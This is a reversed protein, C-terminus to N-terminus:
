KDEEAISKMAEAMLARTQIAMGRADARWQVRHSLVGMRHILRGAANSPAHLPSWPLARIRPLPSARVGPLTVRHINRPLVWFAEHTTPPCGLKKHINHLNCKAKRQRCAFCAHKVHTHRSFAVVCAQGLQQCLLCPQMISTLVLEFDTFTIYIYVKDWVQAFFAAEPGQLLRVLEREEGAYPRLRPRVKRRTQPLVPEPEWGSEKEPMDSAADNRNPSRRHQHQTEAVLRLLDGLARAFTRSPYCQRIAAFQATSDSM